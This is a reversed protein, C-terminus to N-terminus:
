STVARSITADLVQVLLLVDGQWSTQAYVLTKSRAPQLKIKKKM